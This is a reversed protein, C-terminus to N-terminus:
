RAGPIKRCVVDFIGCLPDADCQAGVLPGQGTYSALVPLFHPHSKPYRATFATRGISAPGCVPAEQSYTVGAQHYGDVRSNLEWYYGASTNTNCAVHSGNDGMYDVCSLLGTVVGKKKPAAGTKSSSVSETNPKSQVDGDTQSASDHAPEPQRQFVPLTSALAILGIVAFFIGASLTARQRFAISSANIKTLDINSKVKGLLQKSKAADLGAIEKLAALRAQDDLFQALISTIQDANFLGEGEVINRVAADAHQSQLRFFYNALLSLLGIVTTVGGLAILEQASM